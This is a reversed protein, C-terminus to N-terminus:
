SGFLMWILSVIPLLMHFAATSSRDGKAEEVQLRARLRAAVQPLESVNSPASSSSRAGYTPKSKRQAAEFHQQLLQQQLTHLAAPLFCLAPIQSDPAVIIECHTPTRDRCLVCM